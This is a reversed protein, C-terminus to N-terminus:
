TFDTFDIVHFGVYGVVCGVRMCGVVVFKGAEM